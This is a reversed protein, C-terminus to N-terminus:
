VPPRVDESDETDEDEDEDIGSVFDALTMDRLVEEYELLADDRKLVVWVVAGLAEFDMKAGATLVENATLKTERKIDRWELGNIDSFDVAVKEDNVTIELVPLKM